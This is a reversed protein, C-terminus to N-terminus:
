QFSSNGHHMQFIEKFVGSVNLAHPIDQLTLYLTVLNIGLVAFEPNLPIDEKLFHSFIANFSEQLNKLSFQVDTDKGEGFHKFFLEKMSEKQMENMEDSIMGLQRLGKEFKDNNDFYFGEYLFCVGELFTQSFSYHLKSPVWYFSEDSSFFQNRLDIHVALGKEFFQSFYVKLVKEGDEKSSLASKSSPLEKVLSVDNLKWNGKRSQFNKEYSEKDFMSKTVAAGMKLTEKISLLKFAKQPLLKLIDKDM